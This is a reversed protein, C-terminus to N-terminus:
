GFLRWQKHCRLKTATSELARQRDKHETMNIFDVDEWRVGWLHTKINDEWKRM